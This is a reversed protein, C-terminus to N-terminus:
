TNGYLAGSLWKRLATSQGLVGIEVGTVSLRPSSLVWSPMWDPYTTNLVSLGLHLKSKKKKKKITPATKTQGSSVFDEFLFKWAKCKKFSHQQDNSLKEPIVTNM